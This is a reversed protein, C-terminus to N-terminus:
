LNDYITGKWKFRNYDKIYEKNLENDIDKTKISKKDM